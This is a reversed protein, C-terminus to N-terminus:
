IDIGFYSSQIQWIRSIYRMMSRQISLETSHGPLPRAWWQSNLRVEIRCARSQNGQRAGFYGVCLREVVHVGEASSIVQNRQAKFTSFDTNPHIFHDRDM